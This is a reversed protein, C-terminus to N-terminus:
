FRFVSALSTTFKNDGAAPDPNNDNEERIRLRLALTEYIPASFVILGRFLCYDAPDSIDPMYLIKGSLAMGNDFAVVGEIGVYASTYRNADFRIFKENVSGVGMPFFLSRRQEDILRYGTGAAPCTRLDILRPIDREAAPRVFLDVKRYGDYEAPLFSDFEEKTTDEPTDVTKRTECAYRFDFILRTPRRRRTVSLDFGAKRNAVAGQEYNIGLGM